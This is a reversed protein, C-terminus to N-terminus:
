EQYNDGSLIFIILCVLIMLVGKNSEIWETIGGM